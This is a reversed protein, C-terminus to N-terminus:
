VEITSLVSKPESIRQGNSPQSPVSTDRHTEHLGGDSRQEQGVAPVAEARQAENTTSRIHEHITEELILNTNAPELQKPSEKSEVSWKADIPGKRKAAEAQLLEIANNIANIHLKTNDSEMDKKLQEAIYVEDVGANQLAGVLSMYRDRMLRHKKLLEDFWPLSLTLYAFTKYSRPSTRVSNIRGQWLHLRCAEDIPKGNLLWDEAFELRSTTITEPKTKASTIRYPLVDSVVDSQNQSFCNLRTSIILGMDRRSRRNFVKCCESIQGDPYEVWDGIKISSDKWFKINTIGHSIADEKGDYITFIGGYKPREDGKCSRHGKRSIQHV